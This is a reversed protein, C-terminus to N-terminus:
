QLSAGLISKGAPGLNKEPKPFLVQMVQGAVAGEPVVIEMRDGTPSEVVLRM